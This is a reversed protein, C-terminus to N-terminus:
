KTWNVMVVVLDLIDVKGDNNLDAINGVSISNWNTILIVYDVINVKGDKNIDGRLAGAIGGSSSYGSITGLGQPTVNATTTPSTVTGTITSSATTTISTNLNGTVESAQVTGAFAILSFTIVLVTYKISNTTM